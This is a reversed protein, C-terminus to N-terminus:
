NEQERGVAVPTFISSYLCTFIEPLAVSLVTQPADHYLPWVSGAWQAAGLIEYQIHQMM